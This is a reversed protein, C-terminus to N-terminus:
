VQKTVLTFLSKLESSRIGRNSGIFFQTSQTQLSEGIVFNRAFGIASITIHISWFHVRDANSLHELDHLMDSLQRTIDEDNKLWPLAAKASEPDETYAEIVMPLIAKAVPRLSYGGDLDPLNPTRPM